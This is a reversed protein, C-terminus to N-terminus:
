ENVTNEKDQIAYVAITMGCRIKSSDKDLPEMTISEIWVKKKNKQLKETLKIINEYLGVINLNARKIKMGTGDDKVDRKKKSVIFDLSTVACDTEELIIQLQTGFFFNAEESTFLLARFPKLQQNLKQLKSEKIKLKSEAIKNQKATNEVVSEYQEAASMYTAHPAVIWSYMAITMIVVLAAFFANRSSRDLKTIKDIGFM